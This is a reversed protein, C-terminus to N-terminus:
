TKPPQCNDPITVNFLPSGTVTVDDSPVSGPPSPNRPGDADPGRGSRMPSGSAPASRFVILRQNLVAANASTGNPAFRGPLEPLPSISAGPITRQSKETNLFKTKLSLM